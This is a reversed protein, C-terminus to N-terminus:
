NKEFVRFISAALHGGAAFKGSKYVVSAIFTGGNDTLLV